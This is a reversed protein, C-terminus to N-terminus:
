KKPLFINRIEPIKLNKESNMQEKAKQIGYWDAKLDNMSDDWAKQFPMKKFVVKDILDKIKKLISLIVATIEGM